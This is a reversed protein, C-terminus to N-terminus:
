NDDKEGNDRYAALLQQLKDAGRAIHSKITGLPMNTVDAIEPHSLGEHYSLVVCLRQDPTLQALADSLDQKLGITDERGLEVESGAPEQRDKRVHALWLRVTIQKLWGPFAGSEKLTTLKLWVQLFVQQALDDALSADGCLRRLLGRTRGQFRNVLETFAQRDGGRALGVIMPDPCGPYYDAADFVM